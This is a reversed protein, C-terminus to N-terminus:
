RVTTNPLSFVHVDDEGPTFDAPTHLQIWLKECWAV